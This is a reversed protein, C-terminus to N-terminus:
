IEEGAQFDKLDPIKMGLGQLVDTLDRPPKSYIVCGEYDHSPDIRGSLVLLSAHLFQRRLRFNQRFFANTEPDGYKMDGAVPHGISALHARIQHTRGTILHVKLLTYGHGHALPTFATEIRDSGHAPVDKITVQNTKEDKRLWGSISVTESITGRVLTLYYKKFSRNKFGDSLFRLGDQTRGATIIGSTNRDLRNCVSPKLTRLSEDTVEGRSRLEGILIENMSIDEAEAKQSLIGAPKDLIMLHSDEYLIRAGPLHTKPVKPAPGSFKAITEDALWLTVTDGVALKESGDAKHDNLVINKKRLMKYLFSKPAEKLLRALYKDLRQGSEGPGIIRKQM